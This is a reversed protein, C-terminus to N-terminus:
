FSTSDIKTDVLDGHRLYIDILIKLRSFIELQCLEEDGLYLAWKISIKKQPFLSGTKKFLDIFIKM